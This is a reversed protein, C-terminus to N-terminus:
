KKNVGNIKEQQTEHFSELIKLMGADMKKKTNERWDTITAEIKGFEKAASQVTSSQTIKEYPIGLTKTMFERFEELSIMNTMMEAIDEPTADKKVQINGIAKNTNLFLPISLALLVPHDIAGSRLVEYM